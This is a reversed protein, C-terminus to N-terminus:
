LKVLHGLKLHEIGSEIKTIAKDAAERLAPNNRDYLKEVVPKSAREIYSAAAVPGSVHSERVITQRAGSSHELTSTPGDSVRGPGSALQEAHRVIHDAASNIKEPTDYGATWQGGGSQGAPVRPENENM